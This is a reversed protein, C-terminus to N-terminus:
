SRRSTTYSWLDYYIYIYSPTRSLKELAMTGTEFDITTSKRIRAALSMKQVILRNDNRREEARSQKEQTQEEQRQEERLRERKEGCFRERELMGVCKMGLAAQIIVMTRGTACCIGTLKRKQSLRGDHGGPEIDLMMKRGVVNLIVNGWMGSVPSAKCGNLSTKEVKSRQQASLIGVHSYTGYRVDRRTYTKFVM